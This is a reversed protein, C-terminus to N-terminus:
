NLIAYVHKPFGKDARGWRLLKELTAQSSGLMALVPLLKLVFDVWKPRYNTSQTTHNQQLSKKNNNKKYNESPFQGSNKM